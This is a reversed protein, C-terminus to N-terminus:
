ASQRQEDLLQDTLETLADILVALREAGLRGEIREYASIIAPSVRDIMDRGRPTISIRIRRQDGPDASRTILGQEDFHRVIRTMSPPQLACRSAVESVTAHPVDALSRLVRWQAETMGAAHLAPRFARRAADLAHTLAMPLSRDFEPLDLEHGTM